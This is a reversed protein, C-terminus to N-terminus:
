EGLRDLLLLTWDDEQEPLSANRVSDMLTDLWNEQSPDGKAVLAELPGYGLPEGGEVPAEPLGDTLMLFQGKAPIQARISQYPVEARLGLPLRPQAVELPQPPQGPILLYPDPLGANLLEIEGSDPWYVALALAVFERPALEAALKRNLARLTAEPTGGEALLPLIAKVTAMVLSAAIGKGAVDAVVLWLSGDPRLFYDYFDGAVFRAPLNRAQLQYSEARHHEPPLLRSQLTRALELERAAL